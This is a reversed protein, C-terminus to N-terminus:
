TLFIRCFFAPIPVRIKEFRRTLRLYLADICRISINSTCSYSDSSCCLPEKQHNSWQLRSHKCSYSCCPILSLIPSLFSQLHLLRPTPTPRHHQHHHTQLNGRHKQLPYKFNYAITQIYTIYLISNIVPLFFFTRSLKYGNHVASRICAILDFCIRLM